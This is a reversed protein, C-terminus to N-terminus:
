SLHHAYAMRPTSLCVKFLDYEASEEGIVTLLTELDALSPPALFEINAQIRSTEGILVDKKGSM